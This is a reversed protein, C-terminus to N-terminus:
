LAVMLILIVVIVAVIIVTTNDSLPNLAASSNEGDVINGVQIIGGPPTGLSSPSGGPSHASFQVPAIAPYYVAAFEAHAQLIASYVCAANCVKQISQLQGRVQNIYNALGQAAASPSMKGTRVLSDVYPIVQNIVGAMGCLTTQEDAVAQAHHQFIQTIAQVAAGIGPIAAGAMAAIGSAIQGAGQTLEVNTLDIQTPSGCDGVNNKYYVIGRVILNSTCPTIFDGSFGQPKNNQAATNVQAYLSQPVFNAPNLGVIPAAAQYQALSTLGM